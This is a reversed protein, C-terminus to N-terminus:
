MRMGGTMAPLGLASAKDFVTAAGWGTGGPDYYALTGSGSAAALRDAPNSFTWVTTQASVPLLLLLLAAFARM